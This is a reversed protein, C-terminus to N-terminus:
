NSAKASFRDLFEHYAKPINNGSESAPKASASHASIMSPDRLYIVTTTSGCLKRAVEFSAASILRIDIQAAAAQLATKNLLFQTTVPSPANSANSLGELFFGPAFDHNVAQTSHQFNIRGHFWDIRPNYRHLWRHGLVASCLPDLTTVLFNIIM